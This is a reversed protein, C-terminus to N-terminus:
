GLKLKFFHIIRDLDKNRQKASMLYLKPSSFFQYYFFLPITTDVVQLPNEKQFNSPFVCIVFKIFTDKIWLFFVLFCVHLISECVFKYNGANKQLVTNSIKFVFYTPLVRSLNRM